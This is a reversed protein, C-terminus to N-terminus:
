DGEHPGVGGPGGDEALLHRQLMYVQSVAFVVTLGLIGFVKFTVWTDTSVSRWVAENIAALILFFGAYRLTLGRWGEESLPLSPGLLMKLLSKGTLHGAILVAALLVNIITVKLKIFLDDQLWITLAGFIGVAAATFITM